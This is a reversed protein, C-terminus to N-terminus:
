AIPPPLETDNPDDYMYRIAHIDSSNDIHAQSLFCRGNLGWKVGWSFRSGLYFKGDIVRLQEGVFVEHNDNGPIYTCIGTNSDVAFASTIRMGLCVGWGYYAANAAEEFNELKIVDRLKFRAAQTKAEVTPKYIDDPTATQPAIGITALATIADASNSGQDIGRNILSYLFNPSLPVFPAGSTARSLMCATSWANPLCSGLHGQDLIPIEKYVRDFLPLDALKILPFGRDAFTPLAASLLHNKPTATKGLCRKVGNVDLVYNM